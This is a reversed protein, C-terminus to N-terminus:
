QSVSSQLIKQFPKKTLQATIIELILPKFILPNQHEAKWLRLTNATNTQYGLIPTDYPVGKVIKAPIWQV